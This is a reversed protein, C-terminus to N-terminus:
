ELARMRQTVKVDIRLPLRSPASPTTVLSRVDLATWSDAIWARRRDVLMTGHVSGTVMRLVGPPLEPTTDRLVTGRMSVYAFDGGHTLSDLHFLANIRMAGKGEAGAIPFVMTRMWTEGVTVPEAPLTAPVSGLASGAVSLREPPDLLTMAGHPTVRVHFRRGQVARRQTESPPPMGDGELSMSDILVLLTSSSEDSARVISRLLAVTSM